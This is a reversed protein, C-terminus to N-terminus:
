RRRRREVTRGTVRTRRYAFAVGIVIVAAIAVIPIWQTLMENMDSLATAGNWASLDHKQAEEDLEAQVVVWINAIIIIFLVTGALYTILQLYAGATTQARTLRERAM